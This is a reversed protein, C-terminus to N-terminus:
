RPVRERAQIEQLLQDYDPRTPFRNVLDQAYRVALDWREHDRCVTALGILYEANEPDLNLAKQLAPLAQEFHGLQNLAVGYFYQIHSREPMLRAANGISILGRDYDKMRIWYRGLAEHISGNEPQLAVARELLKRAESTRGQQYVLEALNVRSEAHDPDVAFAQRYSQEARAFDGLDSYLLGLGMHSGPRDELADRSEKYEELARDFAQQADAPLIGLPIAAALTRAAEIRVARVPDSLLHTASRVRQRIPVSDLGTLASERVMPDDDSLAALTAKISAQSPLNQLLSVATARAIGPTERDAILDILRREAGRANARGAALIEGYHKPLPLKASENMWKELAAAAWEPSEERHCQNCANPTGLEVSLDPRPIRLSHDRRPDVVMYHKAPMHCEVCSAGTSNPQHFHHKPTDYQPAQHCQTCLANGPLRLKLTHPNHCDTCRVGEHYMKSQIFSGHVYVEEDIQGDPHYLVEELLSLSHTDAFRQGHPFEKQLPRRRSHCRACSEVQVNSALPQSRSPKGTKPDPMWFGPEKEKLVVALGKDISNQEDPTNAWEVHRSGPGHCAECSVNMESWTTAYSKSALDYNKKLNTSHCDACM